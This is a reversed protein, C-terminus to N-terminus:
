KIAEDAVVALKAETGKAQNLLDKSAADFGHRALTATTFAASNYSVSVEGAQNQWVLMKLPLDIALTPHELFQPTGGKPNGVVLVTTPPMQLGAAKAAAAHDVRTFVVLGNQRAAAELRELTVDFPHASRKTVLNDAAQAFGACSLLAFSLTVFQKLRSM